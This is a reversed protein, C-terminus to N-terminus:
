HCFQVAGKVRDQMHSRESEGRGVFAWYCVGQWQERTHGSGGLGRPWCVQPGSAQKYGLRPVGPPSLPMELCAKGEGKLVVWLASAPECSAGVLCTAAARQAGTAPTRWGQWRAQHRGHLPSITCDTCVRPGVLWYALVLSPRKAAPYKSLM